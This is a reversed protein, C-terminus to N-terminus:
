KGICLMYFFDCVNMPFYNEGLFPLGKKFKMSEVSSLVISEAHKMSKLNM